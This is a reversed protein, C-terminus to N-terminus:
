CVEGIRFVPRRRIQIHAVAVHSDQLIQTRLSLHLGHLHRGFVHLLRDAVVAALLTMLASEALLILDVLRFQVLNEVLLM